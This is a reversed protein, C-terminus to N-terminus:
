YSDPTLEVKGAFTRYVWITYLLVIPMGILAVILMVKLTLPSSSANAITLSLAPDNLDPVLNPFLGSGCMGMLGAISVASWVFAAGAQAKSSAVRTMIIAITASIPIIWLYPMARYNALLRPQTAITALVAVVFLIAYAWWAKEAWGRAREALEGDTKLVIYNAGHVAFMAFGLLGILLAYPNLLGLFTGAFNMDDSLPLGRLMNGMAVGLLLAPLMSGISFALDWSRRWRPSSEKGRFELSVARFILAFLVLMLALYLGSFVTAYVHPFAAFLAGGGTLLWVENGDWVPGIANLLKRRDEDKKNFLHWIGVGLDFGDLVAYGLLLIGVLFFWVIQLSTM